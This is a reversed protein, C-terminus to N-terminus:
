ELRRTSRVTKTPMAARFREYAEEAQRKWPGHLVELCFEAFDQDKRAMPVFASPGTPLPAYEAAIGRKSHLYRSLRVPSAVPWDPLHKLCIGVKASAIFKNLERGLLFRDPMAIACRDKLRELMERRHPTVNLGYFGFDFQPEEDFAPDVLKESFGLELFAAPAWKKYDEVPEKVMSWIFEARPAIKEFSRRRTLWPDYELWNFTHGTPVETAILGFKFRQESFLREDSDHFNEWIVNMASPAITDGVTVKHNLDTLGATLWEMMDFLTKRGLPCHNGTFLHFWM